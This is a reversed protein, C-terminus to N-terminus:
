AACLIASVASDKENLKPKATDRAAVAKTPCSNPLFEGLFAKFFQYIQVIIPSIIIDEIPSSNKIAGLKNIENNVSSGFTTEKDVIASLSTEM